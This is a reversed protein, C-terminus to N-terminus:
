TPLSGGYKALSLTYKPHHGKIDPINSANVVKYLGSTVPSPLDALKGLWMLSQAEIVVAVHATIQFSRKVNQDDLYEGETQEWRCDVETATGITPQGYRDNSSYPWYVAKQKLNVVTPDPM